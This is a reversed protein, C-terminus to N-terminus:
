EKTEEVESSAEEADFNVQALGLQVEAWFQIDNWVSTNLLYVVYALGIGGVKPDFKEGCAECAAQMQDKTHKGTPFAMKSDAVVFHTDPGKVYSEEHIRQAELIKKALEKM